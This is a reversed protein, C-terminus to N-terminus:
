NTLYLNVVGIEGPDIPYIYIYYTLFDVSLKPPALSSHSLIPFIDPNSSAVSSNLTLQTFLSSLRLRTKLKVRIYNNVYYMSNCSIYEKDRTHIYM